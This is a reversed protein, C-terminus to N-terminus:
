LTIKHPLQEVTARQQQQQEESAPTHVVACASFMDARVAVNSRKLWSLRECRATSIGSSHVDRPGQLDRNSSACRMRGLRCGSLAHALPLCPRPARRVSETLRHVPLGDLGAATADSHIRSDICECYVGDLRVVQPRAGSTLSNDCHLMCPPRLM